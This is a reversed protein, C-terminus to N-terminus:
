PDCQRGPPPPRLLQSPPRQPEQYEDAMADKFQAASKTRFRESQEFCDVTKLLLDDFDLANCEKLANLYYAYVKAILEDRRNWGAANALGDPGEWRKWPRGSGWLAGRVWCRRCEIQRAERGRM